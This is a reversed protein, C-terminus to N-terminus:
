EGRDIEAEVYSDLVSNVRQLDRELLLKEQQLSECVFESYALRENLSEAVAIFYRENEALQKRNMQATDACSDVRSRAIEVESILYERVSNEM